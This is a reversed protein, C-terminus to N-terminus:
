DTRTTVVDSGSTMENAVNSSFKQIFYVVNNIDGKSLEDGFPPMYQSLSHKEGGDRIVNAMYNRPRTSFIKLRFNSPRSSGMRVYLPTAASRGDAHVGHCRSCYNAFVKKGLQYKEDGMSFSDHEARITTSMMLASVMVIISISLSSANIWANLISFM